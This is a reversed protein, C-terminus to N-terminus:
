LSSGESLLDLLRTRGEAARLTQPNKKESSKFQSGLGLETLSALGRGLGMIPAPPVDTAQCSSSRKRGGAKRKIIGLSTM